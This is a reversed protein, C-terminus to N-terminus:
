QITESTRRCMSRQTLSAVSLRQLMNQLMFLPAPGSYSLHPLVFACSAAICSSTAHRSTSCAAPASCNWVSSLSARSVGRPGQSPMEISSFRLGEKDPMARVCKLGFHADASYTTLNELGEELVPLAFHYIIMFVLPVSLILKPRFSIQLLLLRCGFHQGCKEWWYRGFHDVERWCHRCARGLIGRVSETADTQGNSACGPHVVLMISIDDFVQRRMGGSPLRLIQALTYHYKHAARTLAKRVLTSAAHTGSLEHQIEMKNSGTGSSFELITQHGRQRDYPGVLWGDRGCHLVAARDDTM